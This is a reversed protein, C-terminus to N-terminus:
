LEIHYLEIDLANLIRLLTDITYNNEGKIVKQIQPYHINTMASLKRISLNNKDMKERILKGIIEKQAQIHEEDTREHAIGQGHKTGAVYKDNM